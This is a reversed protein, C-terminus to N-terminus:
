LRGFGHLAIPLSASTVVATIITVYVWYRKKRPIKSLEDLDVLGKKSWCRSFFLANFLMGVRYLRGVVGLGRGAVRADVVVRTNALMAEIDDLVFFAVYLLMFYNVFTVILLILAIGEFISM